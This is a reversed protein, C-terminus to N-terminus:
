PSGVIQEANFRGFNGFAQRLFTVGQTSDDTVRRSLTIIRGDKMTFREVNSVTGESDFSIAVLQRDTVVPKRFGTTKQRMSLYYWADNGRLSESNPNGFLESVRDQSDIGVSIESLERDSPAYGFDRIRPTCASVALILGFVALVRLVKNFGAM